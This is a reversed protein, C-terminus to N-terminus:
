FYSYSIKLFLTNIPLPVGICKIIDRFTIITDMM